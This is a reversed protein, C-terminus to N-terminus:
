HDGDAKEEFRVLHPADIYRKLRWPFVDGRADIYAVARTVYELDEPTDGCTRRTDYIWSGDEESGVMVAYSEVDSRVTADAIAFAQAVLGECTVRELEAQVAGAVRKAVARGDIHVRLSKEEAM